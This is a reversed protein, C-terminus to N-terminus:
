VNRVMLDKIIKKIKNKYKSVGSNKISIIDIYKNKDRLIIKPILPLIAKQINGGYKFLITHISRYDFINEPYCYVPDLIDYDDRNLIYKNIHSEDHWLATINNSLDIDINNKLAHCLSLFAMTKGGNVAGTVYYNGDGRSIYATSKKNRDYAFKRNIRYYSGAQRVFLLDKQPLFEKETINEIFLVNANMFFIYDCEQLEKEQTLFLHFRKLTNDPWGLSQQYIKHIRSCNEERDLHSADTFVFYYKKSNTLFYRECSEFFEKWFIVYKGTCIYLIAIKYM